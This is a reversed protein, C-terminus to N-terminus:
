WIGSLNGDGDVVVGYVIVMVKGWNSWWGSVSWGLEVMM